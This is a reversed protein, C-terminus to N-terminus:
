LMDLAVVVDFSSDPFPLSRADAAVREAGSDPEVFSLDVATVRQEEGLWRALGEDGSGVELLTEGGAERVLGVVPEYRVLHNLVLRACRVPARGYPGTSRGSTLM